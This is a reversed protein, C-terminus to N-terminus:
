PGRRVAAALKQLQSSIKVGSREAASMNIEFRVKDDQPVFNITGGSKGFSPSEGITVIPLTEMAAQVQTWLSIEAASVFLVQASRADAVSHITRVVIPHGNVKRDHVVEELAAAMPSDGLVGILIPANVDAFSQPPWEIFKTFNYVFAAEIQEMRSATAHANLAVHLLLLGLLFPHPRTRGSCQQRTGAPPEHMRDNM